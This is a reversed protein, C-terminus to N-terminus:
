SARLSCARRTCLPASGSENAYEPLRLLMLAMDVEHDNEFTHLAELRASNPQDALVPITTMYTDLSQKREIPPLLGQICAYM